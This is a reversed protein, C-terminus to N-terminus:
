RTATLLYKTDSWSRFCLPVLKQLPSSERHLSSHPLLHQVTRGAMSAATTAQWAMAVAAPSALPVAPHSNFASAMGAVQQAARFAQQAKAAAKAAKESEAALAAEAKAIAQQAAVTGLQKAEQTLAAKTAEDTSGDTPTTSVFSM